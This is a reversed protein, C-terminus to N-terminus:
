RRRAPLARGRPPSPSVSAILSELLLPLNARSVDFDAVVPGAVGSSHGAVRASGAECSSISSHCAVRIWARGGLPM